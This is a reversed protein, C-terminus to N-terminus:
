NSSQEMAGGAYRMCKCMSKTSVSRDIVYNDGDQKKPFTAIWNAEVQAIPCNDIRKGVDVSWVKLQVITYYQICM